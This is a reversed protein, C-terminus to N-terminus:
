DARWSSPTLQLYHPKGVIGVAYIDMAPHLKTCHHVEDPGQLLRKGRLETIFDGYDGQLIRRPSVQFVAMSQLLVMGDIQVINMRLPTM